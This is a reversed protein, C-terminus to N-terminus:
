VLLQLILFATALVLVVAMLILSLDNQGTTNQPQM